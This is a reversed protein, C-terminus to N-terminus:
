MSIITKAVCFINYLLLFYDIVARIKNVKLWFNIDEQRLEYLTVFLTKINSTQTIKIYNSGDVSAIRTNVFYKGKLKLKPNAM